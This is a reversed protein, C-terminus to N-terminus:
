YCLHTGRLRLVYRHRASFCRRASRGREGACRGGGPCNCPCVRSSRGGGDRDAPGFGTTAYRRGQLGCSTGGGNAAHDPIRHSLADDIGTAAPFHLPLVYDGSIQEDAILAPFTFRGRPCPPTLLLHRSLTSPVYAACETHPVFRVRLTRDVKAL